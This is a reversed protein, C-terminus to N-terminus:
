DRENSHEEYLYFGLMANFVICTGFAFLFSKFLLFACIAWLGSLFILNAVKM